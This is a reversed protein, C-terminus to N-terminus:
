EEPELGEDSVTFLQAQVTAEDIDTIVQEAPLGFWGMGVTVTYATVVAVGAVSANVAGVGATLVVLLVM